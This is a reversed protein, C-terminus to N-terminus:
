RERSRYRNEANERVIRIIYGGWDKKADDYQSFVTSVYLPGRLAYLM